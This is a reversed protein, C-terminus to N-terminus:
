RRPFVYKLNYEKFYILILVILCVEGCQQCSEGFKTYYDNRCFLLGDKEIYWSSLQLDCVSCRFCYAHWDQGLARIYMGDDLGNFCSSCELQTAGISFDAKFFFFLFNFMCHKIVQRLISM